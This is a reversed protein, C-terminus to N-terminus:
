SLNISKGNERGIEGRKEEEKKWKRSEDNETGMEKVADKKWTLLM